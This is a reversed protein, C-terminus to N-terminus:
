EQPRWNYSVSGAEDLSSDDVGNQFFPVEERQTNLVDRPYHTVAVTPM